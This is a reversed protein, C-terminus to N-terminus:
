KKDDGMKMKIKGFKESEVELEGKSIANLLQVLNSSNDKLKGFFMYIDKFVHQTSTLVRILKNIRWILVAYAFLLVWLTYTLTTESLM